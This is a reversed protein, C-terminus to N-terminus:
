GRDRPSPSTYLLCTRYMIFSSEGYVPASFLEGDVSLGNRVAPLLDDVNYEPTEAIFDNLGLLFGSEGFQPTEFM